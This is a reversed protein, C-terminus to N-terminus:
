SGKTQIVCKDRRYAFCHSQAGNHYFCWQFRVFTRISIHMCIAQVKSFTLAVGTNGTARGIGDTSLAVILNFASCIYMTGCWFVNFFMIIKISVAATKTLCFDGTFIPNGGRQAWDGIFLLRYILM